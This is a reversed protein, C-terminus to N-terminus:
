WVLHSPVSYPVWCIADEEYSMKNTFGTKTICKTPSLYCINFTEKRNWIIFSNIGQVSIVGRSQKQSPDLNNPGSFAIWIGYTCWLLRNLIWGVRYLSILRYFWRHSCCYKREGVSINHQELSYLRWMLAFIDHSRSNDTVM